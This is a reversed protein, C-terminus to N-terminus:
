LCTESYNSEGESRQPNKGKLSIVGELGPVEKQYM